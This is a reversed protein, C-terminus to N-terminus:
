RNDHSSDESRTNAARALYKRGAGLADAFAQSQYPEGQNDICDFPGLPMAENANAVIRRLIDEAECPRLEEAM